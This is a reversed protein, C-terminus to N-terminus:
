IYCRREARVMRSTHARQACGSGRRHAMNRVFYVYVSIGFLHLVRLCGFINSFLREVSQGSFCSLTQKHTDNPVSAPGPNPKIHGM